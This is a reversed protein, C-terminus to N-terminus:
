GFVCCKYCGESPIVELTKRKPDVRRGLVELTDHRLHYISEVPHDAVDIVQQHPSFVLFLVVSTEMGQQFLKFLCPHSQIFVLALEGPTLHHEEPM